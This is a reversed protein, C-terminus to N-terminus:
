SFLLSSYVVKMIRVLTLHVGHSGTAVGDDTMACVGGINVSAVENVDVLYTLVTPYPSCSVCSETFGYFSCLM